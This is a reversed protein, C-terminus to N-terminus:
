SERLNVVVREGIRVGEPISTVQFQVPSSQSETTSLGAGVFELGMELGSSTVATSGPVVSLPQGDFMEAEVWLDNADAIEWLVHRAEIVQGVRVQSEVIVGSVSAVLPQRGEIGEILADRQSKLTNLEIRLSLIRGDRFPLLPMERTRAIELEKAAVMGRLTAIERTLQARESTSLIPTLYALLEGQQVKQGIM